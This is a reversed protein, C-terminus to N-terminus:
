ADYDDVEETISNVTKVLLFIFRATVGRWQNWDDHDSIGKTNTNVRKM